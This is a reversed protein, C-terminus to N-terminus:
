FSLVVACLSESHGNKKKRFGGIAIDSSFNKNQRNNCGTGQTVSLMWCGYGEAPPPPFVALCAISPRHVSTHPCCFCDFSGALM